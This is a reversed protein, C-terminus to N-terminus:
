GQDAAARGVQPLGQGVTETNHQARALGPTRRRPTRLKKEPLAVDGRCKALDLFSVRAHFGTQRGEDQEETKTRKAHSARIGSRGAEADGAMGAGVVVLPMAFFMSDVMM